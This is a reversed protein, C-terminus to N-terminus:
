CQSLHAFNEWNFPIKLPLRFVKCLQMMADYMNGNRSTLIMDDMADVKGKRPHNLSGNVDISVKVETRYLCSKIRPKIDFERTLNKCTCVVRRARMVVSRNRMRFTARYKEHCLGYGYGRAWHLSTRFTRFTRFARLSKCGCCAAAATCSANYEGKSNM